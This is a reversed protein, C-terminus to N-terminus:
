IRRMVYINENRPDDFEVIKLDFGEEQIIRHTREISWVNQWSRPDGYHIYERERPPFRWVIISLERAAQLQARLCDDYVDPSVHQLVHRSYTIDCTNPPVDEMGGAQWNYTPYEQKAFEVFQSTIEWGTYVIKNTDHLQKFCAKFDWANGFGIEGFVPIRHRFRLLTKMATSVTRAQQRRSLLYAWVCRYAAQRSPQKRSHGLWRDWQNKETVGDWLPQSYDGRTSM